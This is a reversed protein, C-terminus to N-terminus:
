CSFLFRWLLLVYENPTEHTAAPEDEPSDLREILAEHTTQSRRDVPVEDKEVSHRYDAGHLILEHAKEQAHQSPLLSTM